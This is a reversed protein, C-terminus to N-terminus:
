SAGAAKEAARRMDEDDKAAHRTLVEAMRALVRARVEEHHTM